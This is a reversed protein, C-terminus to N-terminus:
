VPRAKKKSIREEERALDVSDTIKVLNSCLVSDDMYGM